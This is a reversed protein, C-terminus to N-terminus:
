KQRLQPQMMAKGNVSSPKPKPKAEACSVPVTSLSIETFLEPRAEAVWLVTRWTPEASPAATEPDTNEVARPSVNGFVSSAAPMM